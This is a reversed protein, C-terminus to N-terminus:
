AAYRFIAAVMIGEPMEKERPGIVEGGQRVTLGVLEELVDYTKATAEALPAGVQFGSM